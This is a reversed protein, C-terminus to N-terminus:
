CCCCCVFSLMNLVEAEGAEKDEGEEEERIAVVAFFHLERFRILPLREVPVDDTDVVVVVVVFVPLPLLFPLAVFIFTFALVLFFSRSAGSVIAMEPAVPNTPFRNVSFSKSSPELTFTKVL